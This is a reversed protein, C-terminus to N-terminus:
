LFLFPIFDASIDYAEQVPSLINGFDDLTSSVLENERQLNKKLLELKNSLVLISSDDLRLASNVVQTPNNLIKDQYFGRITENVDERERYIVRLEAYHRSELKKLEEIQAVSVGQDALGSLWRNIEQDATMKPPVGSLRVFKEQMKPTVLQQVEKTLMDQRQRQHQHFDKLLNSITAEDERKCAEQLAIMIKEIEKDMVAIENSYSRYLPHPTKGSINTKATTKLEANEITLQSALIKNKMNEARLQENELSLQALKSEIDKIYEKKRQRYNRSARNQSERRRRSKAAQNVDTQEEEHQKHQQQQAFQHTQDVRMQTQERMQPPYNMTPPPGMPFGRQMDRQALMPGGGYHPPQGVPQYPHFVVGQGPPEVKLTSPDTPTHLVSMLLNNDEESFQEFHAFGPQNNGNHGHTPMNVSQAGHMPGYNAMNNSGFHGQEDM